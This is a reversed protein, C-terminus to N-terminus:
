LNSIKKCLRRLEFITLFDHIPSIDRRLHKLQIVDIEPNDKLRYQLDPMGNPEGVAVIPFFEDQIGEALDTVYKQAGGWPGGQTIVFLIKPKQKM